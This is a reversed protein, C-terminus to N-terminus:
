GWRGANARENRRKQLYNLRAFYTAKWDIDSSGAATIFLRDMQRQDLHSVGGDITDAVLAKSKQEYERQERAAEVAPDPAVAEAPQHLMRRHEVLHPPLLGGTPQGFENLQENKEWWEKPKQEVPKTAAAERRRIEEKESDQLRKKFHLHKQSHIVNGLALNLNNWTPRRGGNVIWGVIALFNELGADGSRGDDFLGETRLDQSKMWHLTVARENENLSRLLQGAELQLKSLLKLYPRLQPYARELNEETINENWTQTFYNVVFEANGRDAAVVEPHKQCWSQWAKDEAPTIEPSIRAM